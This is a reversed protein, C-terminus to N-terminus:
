LMNVRLEAEKKNVFVQNGTMHYVIHPLTLQSQGESLNLMLQVQASLQVLSVLHSECKSLEVILLMFHLFIPTIIYVLSVIVIQHFPAIKKEILFHIM